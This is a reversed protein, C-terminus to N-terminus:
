TGSLVEPAMYFPSGAIAHLNGDESAKKVGFNILKVQEEKSNATVIINKPELDRHM